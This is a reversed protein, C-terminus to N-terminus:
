KANNSYVDIYPLRLMVFPWKMPRPNSLVLVLIYFRRLHYSFPYKWHLKTDHLVLYSHDLQGLRIESIFIPPKVVLNCRAPRQRGSGPPSLQLAPPTKQHAAASVPPLLSFQADSMNQRSMPNKSAEQCTGYHSM